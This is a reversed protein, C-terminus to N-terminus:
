KQKILYGLFEKVVNYKTPKEFSDLGPFRNVELIYLRNGKQLIDVKALERGLAKSARQALRVVQLLMKYNRPPGGQAIKLRSSSAIKERSSIAERFNQNHASAIVPVASKFDVRFGSKDIKFRLIISLAKYGVAMVKYEYDAKIFEQVLLQGKPYKEFVQDFQKQNNILFVNKAKFGYTWKLIFPWAKPIASKSLVQTKPISLGAKKLAQYDVWKGQGIKGNAINSDVVKKGAKKFRKALKVIQPLFDAKGKLYPSRIYLTQYKSINIKFKRVVLDEMSLVDMGVHAKKAELKLKKAAYVDRSSIVLIM